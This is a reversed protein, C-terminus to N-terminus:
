GPVRRQFANVDEAATEEEVNAVTSRGVRDSVVVSLTFTLAPSSSTLTYINSVPFQLM